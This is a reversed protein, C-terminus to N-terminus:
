QHAPPSIATNQAPTESGPQVWRFLFVAIMAVVTMAVAWAFLEHSHGARIDRFVGRVPNRVDAFTVGMEFLLLFGLPYFLQPRREMMQLGRDALNRLGALRLSIEVSVIGIAAGVVVDSLYHAGFYLRPLCIWFVSYLLFAAFYRRLIRALGFALAVFYAATDSPFSSWDVLNPSIPFSYARHVLRADFMPRIRYPALDAVTRCVVLAFLTGALISLIAKRNERQHLSDSFWIYLCVSLLIGSRLLNNNEEYDVIRDFFWNGAFANLFHFVRLDAGYISPLLWHM